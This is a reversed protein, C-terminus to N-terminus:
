RHFWNAPPCYISAESWKIDVVEREHGSQYRHEGLEKAWLLVYGVSKLGVIIAGPGHYHAKHYTGVLWEGLHGILANGSIEFQSLRM